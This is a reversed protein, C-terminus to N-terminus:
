RKVPLKSDKWATIGGKMSTVKYGRQQLSIAARKSRIGSLCYVFVPKGKDLAASKKEFDDAKVDINIANELHGEAFEEPTRVDVVVAGKTAKVKDRFVVPDLESVAQACASLAASMIVVTCLTTFATSRM